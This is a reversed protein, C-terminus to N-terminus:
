VCHKFASEMKSIEASSLGYQRAIQKWMKIIEKMEKIINWANQNSIEFYECTEIALDLSQSNDNETIYTSLVNKNDNSPNVDYLPSLKWGKQNKYLFGHNRLHDDTNSILISFVIRKWLELLDEKPAAGFQRIADAIEMYSHTQTDNDVANLMSMASLFPIRREKIRDFRKMVIVQKKGANELIWEQTNLGCEKALTLAVAEWVVNNTYDDKKPFKAICLNGHKDIVSAKPRAGGLSSGPALLLQLDSDKEQLAVVKESADLLKALDVIPPISKIKAPFMFDGNEETKFRLAGQRAIDNVYLLYDIENLTKPARNESKALKNEYRRMLIRGWTDPASDGLSGFLPVQRPNVQKGVGFYLGPELSFAIKNNLWTKSYEFDSSEKGRSFHSWLTGVFHNENNIEIYVLVKKDPM